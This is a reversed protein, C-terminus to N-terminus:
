LQSCNKIGSGGHRQGVQRWARGDDDLGDLVPMRVVGNGAAQAFQAEDGAFRDLHDRLTRETGFRQQDLDAVRAEGQTAGLRRAPDRHLHDILQATLTGRVVDGPALRFVERGGRSLAFRVPDVTGPRPEVVRSPSRAPLHDLVQFDDRLMVFAVSLSMRKSRSHFFREVWHLLLGMFGGLGVSLLIEVIPEVVVALVSVQGNSLATAIGFSVSFLLLGVADDLAVVLMLLRTM